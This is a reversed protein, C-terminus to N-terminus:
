EQNVGMGKLELKAKGSTGWDGDQAALELWHIAQDRNVTVGKGKEYFQGLDFEAKAYGQDASKQIWQFALKENKPKEWGMLYSGGLSYQAAANGKEALSEFLMGTHMVSFWVLGVAFLLASAAFAWAYRVPKNAVVVVTGALFDHLARKRQNTLLVLLESFIWFTSLLSFRNVMFNLSNAPVFSVGTLKLNMDVIAFTVLFMKTLSGLAQLVQFLDRLIIEKWGIPEFDVRLVKIGMMMKGPTQGWRKLMYLQIFLWLLMRYFEHHEDLSDARFLMFSFTISCYMVGADILFSGLRPFFGAYQYTDTDQQARYSIEVKGVYSIAIIFLTLGISFPAFVFGLFSALFLLVIKIDGHSKILGSQDKM